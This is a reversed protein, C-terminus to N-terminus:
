NSREITGGIVKKEEIVEPKGQYLITGGFSVKANLTEGSHVEAKAGSGATVTCVNSVKLNYGHYTAGLDLKVTQNKAEGSLKVVGGSSSKVTLHKINVVLNMFAGEQAKIEVHNQNIEKCTLTVGENADIVSIDKNFYLKAKVKGDATTEPFRLLIKLKNGQQKIKVKEAKEGTVHVEQKDSKILEIDIGNYVKLIEFDKLQKTITTQAFTFISLFCLKFFLIQKM